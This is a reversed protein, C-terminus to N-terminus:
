SEVAQIAPAAGGIWRQYLAPPFFVLWIMVLSAVEFAGYIADWKATFQNTAQYEAYQPLVVLCMAVQFLAFSAWLLYRNCVLRDCLGVRVRRRAQLHQLLYPTAHRAAFRAPGSAFAPRSSPARRSFTFSGASTACAGSSRM